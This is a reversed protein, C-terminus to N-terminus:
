PGLLVQPRQGVLGKGRENRGPLGVPVTVPEDRALTGDVAASRVATREEIGVLAVCLDLAAGRGRDLGPPLVRRLVAEIITHPPVQALLAQDARGAVAGAEGRLQAAQLALRFPLAAAQLRGSPQM